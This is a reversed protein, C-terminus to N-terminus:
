IPSVWLWFEASDWCYWLFCCSVLGILLLMCDLVAVVVVVVVVAVDLRDQLLSLLVIRTGPKFRALSIVGGVSLISDYSVSSTRTGELEARTPDFWLYIVTFQYKSRFTTHLHCLNLIKPLTICHYNWIIFIINFM